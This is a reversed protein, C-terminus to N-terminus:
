RLAFTLVLTFETPVARGAQTGPQFRWKRAASVAAEDFGFGVARMVRIGTPLGKDDVLVALHVSANRVRAKAAVAPFVPDFRTLPKAATVNGGPAGVRYIDWPREYLMTKGEPDSVTVTEPTLGGTCKLTESRPKFKQAEEPSIDFLRDAGAVFLTLLKRDADYSVWDAHCPGAFQRARLAIVNGETDGTTDAFIAELEAREAKIKEDLAAAPPTDFGTRARYQEQTEFEGKQPQRAAEQIAAAQAADFFDLAMKRNRDRVFPRHSLYSEAGLFWLRAEDWTEPAPPRTEAKAARLAVEGAQRSGAAIWPSLSGGTAEKVKSRVAAFLGSITTTDSSAQIQEQLAKAFAGNENGSTSKGPESALIVVGNKPPKMGVLGRARDRGLEFPHDSHPDLILVFSRVPELSEVLSRASYGIDFWFGKATAPFDIPLLVDAFDGRLLYGRYYVVVRDRPTLGAAVTALTRQTEPLGANALLVTEYGISQFASQVQQATRVAGANPAKGYAGNGIVIAVQRGNSAPPTDAAPSLTFLLLLPLM